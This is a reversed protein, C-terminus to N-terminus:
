TGRMGLGSCRGRLRTGPMLMLAVAASWFGASNVLKRGAAVSRRRVNILHDGTWGGANSAAFMALYPLTKAGGM